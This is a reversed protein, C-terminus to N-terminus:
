RVKSLSPRTIIIIKSSTNSARSSRSSSSWRSQWDSRAPWCSLLSGQPWCVPEILGQPKKVWLIYLTQRAPRKSWCWRFNRTLSSLNMTWRNFSSTYVTEDFVKRCIITWSLEPFDLRFFHTQLHCREEEGDSRLSFESSQVREALARRVAGEPRERPEPGEPRVRPAGRGSWRVLSPPSSLAELLLSSYSPCPRPERPAAASATPQLRLRNTGERKHREEASLAGFRRKATALLRLPFCGRCVSLEVYHKVIVWKSNLLMRM